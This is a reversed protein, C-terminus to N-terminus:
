GKTQSSIFEFLRRHDSNQFRTFKIGLGEMKETGNEARRSITGSGRIPTPDDPLNIEFEIESGLPYHGFGRILVGTASLNRTQCFSQIPKGKVHIKIRANSTLPVRPAVGQLDTAVRELHSSLQNEALLRNAGHGIYREATKMHREPAVVIAGSHLCASGPARLARFFEDLGGGSVSTGVIVMDVPTLQVHEHLFSDWPARHIDYGLDSLVNIITSHATDDLRTVLVQGRPANKM